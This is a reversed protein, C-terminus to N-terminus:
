PLSALAIANLIFAIGLVGGVIWGLVALTQREGMPIIRQVRLHKKEHFTGPYHQRIDSKPPHHGSVVWLPLAAIVADAM